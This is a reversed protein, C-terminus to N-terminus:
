RRGGAPSESSPTRSSGGHIEPLSRLWDVLTGVTLAEARESHEALWQEFPLDRVGLFTELTSIFKLANLSDFMLAALPTDPRIASSDVGEASAALARVTAALVAQPDISTTPTTVIASESTTM